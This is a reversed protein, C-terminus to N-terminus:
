MGSSSVARSCACGTWCLFLTGCTLLAVCGADEIMFRLRETPLDPDLPLYDAGSKLVGLLAVPVVACCLLLLAQETRDRHRLLVFGIAPIGNRGIQKRIAAELREFAKAFAEGEPPRINLPAEELERHATAFRSKLQEDTLGAWLGVDPELLGDVSKRAADLPKGIADATLQSLEDPAHYIAKVGLEAVQEAWGAGQALGNDTPSLEVRGLLRGKNRWECEATPFLVIKMM